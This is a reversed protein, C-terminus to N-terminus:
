FRDYDLTLEEGARIRRLARFRTGVAEVNPDDSDNLYWCLSMRNWHKPCHYGEGDWVCFRRVLQKEEPRPTRVYRYDDARHLALWAGKKVARTAFVGVGEIPSPRLAFSM